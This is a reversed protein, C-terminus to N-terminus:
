STLVVVLLSDNIFKHLDGYTKKSTFLPSPVILEPLEYILLTPELTLLRNKKLRKM